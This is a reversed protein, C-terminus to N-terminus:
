LGQPDAQPPQLRRHPRRPHRLRPAQHHLLRGDRRRAPRAAGHDRWLLRRRHGEKDGRGAPSLSPPRSRTRTLPGRRNRPAASHRPSSFPRWPLPSALRLYRGNPRARRRARSVCDIHDADLNYSLKTLRSTIKDFLVREKKGDPPPAPLLGTHVFPSHHRPLCSSIM